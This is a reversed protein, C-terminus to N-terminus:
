HGKARCWRVVRLTARQPASALLDNVGDVHVTVCEPRTQQVLEWLTAYLIAPRDNTLM